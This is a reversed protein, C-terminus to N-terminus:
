WSGPAYPLGYFLEVVSERRSAAREACHPSLTVSTLMLGATDRGRGPVAGTASLGVSVHRDIEAFRGDSIGLQAFLDLGQGADGPESLLRQELVAFVGSTGSRTTGDFGEFTGTHRWAGAGLRGPRGRLSFHVGAEGVYFLADTRALFTSFGRNGTRGHCGRPDRRRLRGGRALAM